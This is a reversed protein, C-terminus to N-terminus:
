GEGDPVLEVLDDGGEVDEGKNQTYEEKNFTSEAMRRDFRCCVNRSALDYMGQPLPPHWSLGGVM